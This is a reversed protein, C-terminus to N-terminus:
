GKIYDKNIAKAAEKFNQLKVAIYTVYIPKNVFGESQLDSRSDNM